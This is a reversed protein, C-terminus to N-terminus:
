EIIYGDEHSLIFNKDNFVDFIKKRLRYIHTEVTHTEVENLYGWIKSLLTKINQPKKKDYLFLITNIEKETLKLKKKDKNIERSNLDLIYKKLFVKSQYNYRLKILKINIKEIFSYIDVPMDSIQFIQKKELNLSKNLYNSNKKFLFISKKIDIKKIQIKKLIEKEDLYNFIDFSLHNKIEILIDYLAKCGVIHIEQKIM